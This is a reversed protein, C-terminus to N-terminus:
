PREDAGFDCGAGIPRADNDFDVAPCGVLPAGDIAVSGADLHFGDAAFSPDVGVLSAGIDCNGQTQTPNDFVISSVLTAAAGCVVGVPNGTVTNFRFTGSSGALLNVGNTGNPGVVTNEIAYAGAIRLGGGTNENVKSRRVNLTTGAGADVGFSRSPGLTSAVLTLSSGANQLLVPGRNNGNNRILLGQVVVTAGGQVTMTSANNASTQIIANGDGVITLSKAISPNENYTGPEVILLDGALVAASAVAATITLFEGGVPAVVHARAADRCISPAGGCQFGPEIQCADDCGDGTAANGDDCQEDGLIFGDGCRPARCGTLCGDTNDTNGDDCSEEFSPDTVLDGCFPLACDTRCADPETDSNNEVGDDCQEVSATIGDGCEATCLSPSGVCVFGPEENCAADCGDGPTTNADDCEEGGLVEGDGCAARCVSPTGVCLFGPEEACADSCGDGPTSNNDDCTEGGLIVGDGCIPACVSPDGVGCEFGTEVACAADCGDGPATAGDDCAEAGRVLGDGCIPACSTPEGSCDFGPELACAASCGDGSTLNEDDCAEAGAIIGDGCGASCVSPEGGDCAFGVEIECAADCGDGPTQNRDDCQEGGRILGDGCRPACQSPAGECEFGPELQCAASCGDGAIDNNDDCQEGSEIIGDGCQVCVSPQGTCIYGPEVSCAADCGDGATTDGDDCAELGELRGNGCVAQAVLEVVLAALAGKEARVTGTGTAVLAGGAGGNFADVDVTIDTDAFAAPLVFGASVEPDTFLKPAAPALVVKPEADSASLTFRLQDIELAADIPVTVELFADSSGCGAGALTAVLLAPALRTLM